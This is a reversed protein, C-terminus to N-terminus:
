LEFPVLTFNKSKGTATTGKHIVITRPERSNDLSDSNSKELVNGYFLYIFKM